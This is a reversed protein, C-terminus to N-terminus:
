EIKDFWVMKMQWDELPLDKVDEERTTAETFETNALVMGLRKKGNSLHEFCAGCPITQMTQLLAEQKFPCKADDVKGHGAPLRPVYDHTLSGHQWLKELTLFTRDDTQVSKAAHPPPHLLISTKWTRVGQLVAHMVFDSDCGSPEYNQDSRIIRADHLTADKSRLSASSPAVSVEIQGYAGHTYMGCMSQADFHEPMASWSGERIDSTRQPAATISPAAVEVAGERNKGTLELDSASDEKKPAFKGECRREDKVVGIKKGILERGVQEALKNGGMQTNAAVVVGFKHKPLLFVHAGFGPICGSHHLITEGPYMYNTGVVWGLAYLEPSINPYDPSPNVDPFFNTSPHMITRPTTLDTWLEHSLVVNENAKADGEQRPLYSAQLLASVWKSYDNVSSM